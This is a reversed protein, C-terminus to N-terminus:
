EQFDQVFAYPTVFRVGGLEGLVLIDEDTTVLFDARGAIACAVFKDDKRDRTYEPVTEIAPIVEARLQIAGLLADADEAHILKRIRPRALVDDLEALLEPSTLMVFQEDVWLQEIIERVAAGPRILYHILVNTDIVARTV